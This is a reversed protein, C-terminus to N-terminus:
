WVCYSLILPISHGQGLDSHSTRKSAMTTQVRIRFKEGTYDLFEIGHPWTQPTCSLYVHLPLIMVCCCLKNRRKLKRNLNQKQLPSLFSFSNRDAPESGVHRCQSPSLQCQSSLGPWERPQCPYLKKLRRLAKWSNDQYSASTLLCFCLDFGSGRAQSTSM